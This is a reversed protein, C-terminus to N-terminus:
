RCAWWSGTVEICSSMQYTYYWICGGLFLAMILGIVVSHYWSPEVSEELKNEMKFLAKM